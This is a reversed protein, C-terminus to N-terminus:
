YPSGKKMSFLHYIGIQSRFTPVLQIGEVRNYVPIETQFYLATKPSFNWGIAPIINIWEGGSNDQQFGDVRDPWYKIFKLSISPSLIVRGLMIQDGTGAILQMSNGFQYAQGAYYNKNQGNMRGVMQMYISLSPRFNFQRLLFGWAIFDWSGSGPQLDANLPFGNEDSLNHKGFPIKPGAGLQIEIGNKPLTALLFKGIIVADGVGQTRVEDLDNVYYIQRLQRNFSFLADVAIRDTISYGTKLFLSHSIRRRSEDLLVGADDIVTGLYNLDYSFDVQFSGSQSGAFGINGSLAAGGSCCAQAFLASGAIAVLLIILVIKKM